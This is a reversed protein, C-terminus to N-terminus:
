ICKNIKVHKYINKTVKNNIQKQEYSNREMASYLYKIQLGTFM